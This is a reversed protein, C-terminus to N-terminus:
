RVIDKVIGDKAGQIIAGFKGWRRKILFYGLYGFIKALHYPWASLSYSFRAYKRLQFLQNRVNLYHVKPELFGEKGSEKSTSSAGAVHYIRSKPVVALDLGANRMRLSWDVDEYYAFY